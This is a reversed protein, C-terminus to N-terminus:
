GRLLVVESGAYDPTTAIVRRGAATFGAAAAELELEDGTLRDLRVRDESVERRGDPAIVERRRELVFAEDVLRVATPHSSYLFGDLECMDPRPSPPGDITEYLELELARSIAIAVTAGARLQARACGLFAHRHEAGGFLQITQMPVLCLAATGPEPLAFSCADAHVTDVPLGAARQALVALLEADRDLAIVRHGRQALDLAVRGTGAGIDLVQGAHDDALERWLPLDEAYSGCELDHWIAILPRTGVRM